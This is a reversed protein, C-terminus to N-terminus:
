KILYFCGGGGFLLTIPGALSWTGSLSKFFFFSLASSKMTRALESGPFRHNDQNFIFLSWLYMGDVRQGLEGVGALFAPVIGLPAAAM